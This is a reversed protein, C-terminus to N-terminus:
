SGRAAVVTFPISSQQENGTTEDRVFVTLEYDGPALGEPSFSAALMSAGPMVSDVRAAAALKVERGVGGAASVRGRVTLEGGLDYGALYLKAAQGAELVPRAGPIFAEGAVSFPFPTSAVGERASERVLLWRGAPDPVLPPLLVAQGAEFPPVRLPVVRLDTEGGPGYRVLLRLSYDGPSVSLDGYFKLGGAALAPGYQGLDLGFQGSFYDRIRGEADVLYGFVETPLTGSSQRGILAPGDIEVLVSVLVQGADRRFPAALVAIPLTGREAGSLLLDAALLQREKGSREAFPKPAYFGPRHVLKAGKPGDKLKIKLKHFKGDPELDRPQIVLTYYASTKELMVVLADEVNNYNRYFEGGTENAMMFLGDTGSRGGRPDHEGKAVGIDVSQIVCNSRRFEELMSDLFSRSTNSGFREEPDVEWTRGSASAQNMRAVEASDTSAFMLSTDFGESLYIVYKRGGVSNMLQALSTFDRTLATLQQQQSRRNARSVDQQTEALYQAVADEIGLDRSGGGATVGSTDLDGSGFSMQLPEVLTVGLPDLEGEVLSPVGLTEVARRLQERDSTFGLVLRPGKTVSYTAVAALDTPHLQEVVRDVAGRARVVSGAGAFTLDFLFLLHRRAAPSLQQTLIQGPAPVLASLDVAEFGTVDHKKGKVIVEFADATLGRVPAGDVTVQVPIEVAVVTETEALPERAASITGAPLLAALTLAIATRANM